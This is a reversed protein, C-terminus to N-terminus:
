KSAISLALFIWAPPRKAATAEGRETALIALLLFLLSLGDFQGQFGTTWISVPNALFLAATRWPDTGRALALRALIAASLVDIASVLTRMLGTFSIGTSHSTHDVARIVGSWLPSYNNLSTGYAGEGRSIAGAVQAYYGIEVGAPLTWAIVMRATLGALAVAAYAGARWGGRRSPV